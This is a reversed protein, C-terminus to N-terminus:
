QMLAEIAAIIRPSNLSLILFGIVVFARWYYFIAYIPGVIIWMKDSRDSNLWIYQWDEKTEPPTGRTNRDETM